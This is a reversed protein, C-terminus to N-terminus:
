LDNIFCGVPTTEPVSVSKGAEYAHIADALYHATVHSRTKGLSIAWNDIAGHYIVRRSADLLWVEPTTTAKFYNGLANPIDTLLPFLVQYKDRFHALDERTYSRGPVIGVVAAGKLQNLTRTYNQCLPCEPSLFVVAVLKQPFASLTTRTGDLHRLPIRNVQSSGSFPLLFLLLLFRAMTMFIFLM